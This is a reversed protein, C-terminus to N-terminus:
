GIKLKGKRAVSEPRDMYRYQFVFILMLECCGGERWWPIPSRAGDIMLWAGKPM